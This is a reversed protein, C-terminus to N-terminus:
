SPRARRLEEEINETLQLMQGLLDEDDGVFAKMAEITLATSSSLVVLSDLQTRATKVWADSAQFFLFDKNAKATQAEERMRDLDVQWDTLWVMVESYSVDRTEKLSILDNPFQLVQPKQKILISVLYALFTSGGPVKLSFMKNMTSIQLSHGANFASGLRTVVKLFELLSQSTTVEEAASRLTTLAEKIQSFEVEIKQKLELLKLRESYRPVDAVRALFVTADNEKSNQLASQLEAETPIWESLQEILDLPHVADLALLSAFFRETGIQKVLSSMLSFGQQREPNLGLQTQSGHESNLSPSQSSLRFDSSRRLFDFSSKDEISKSSGESPQFTGSLQALDSSQLLRFSETGVQHETRLQRSSGIKALDQTSKLQRSSETKALDQTSRLQRSSETKAPDRTDRQQRSSIFQAHDQTGRLQRSGEIYVPDQRDRQQRSDGTQFESGKFSRSDEKETFEEVLTRKTEEYGLNGETQEKSIDLMSRISQWDSGASEAIESRLDDYVPATKYIPSQSLSQERVVEASSLSRPMASRKLKNAIEAINEKLSTISRDNVLRNEPTSYVRSAQRTLLQRKSPSLVEVAKDIKVLLSRVRAHEENEQKYVRRYVEWAKVAFEYALQLNHMSLHLRGLKEYVHATPLGQESCQAERIDRAQEFWSLAKNFCQKKTFIVGLNFCCDSVSLHSEGLGQSRLTLARRYCAAAKELYSKDLYFNGLQFYCDSSELSSVGYYSEVLDTYSVYLKECEKSDGCSEFLSALAAVVSLKKKLSRSQLTAEKGVFKASLDSTSKSLPHDELHDRIEVLTERAAGVMDLQLQAKALLLGDTFIDDTPRDQRTRAEKYASRYSSRAFKVAQDNQSEILLKVIAKRREHKL